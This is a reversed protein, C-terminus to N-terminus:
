DRADTARQWHALRDKFATIEEDLIAMNERSLYRRMPEPVEQAFARTEELQREMIAILRRYISVWWAADPAAPDAPESDFLEQFARPDHKQM